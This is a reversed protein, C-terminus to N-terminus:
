PGFAVTAAPADERDLALQREVLEAALRARAALEPYAAAGVEGALARYLELAEARRGQKLVALALNLRVNPATPESELLARYAAEADAFREMHMWEGAQRYQFYTEHGRRAVQGYLAAARDHRGEECAQRARRELEAADGPTSNERHIIWWGLLLAVLLAGGALLVRALGRGHADMWDAAPFIEKGAATRMSDLSAVLVEWAATELPTAGAPLGARRMRAVVGHHPTPLLLAFFLVWARPPWDAPNWETARPRVGEVMAETRNEWALPFFGCPSFDPVSEAGEDRRHFASAEEDWFSEKLWDDLERQVGEAVGVARDMDARGEALRCFAAAENSLLVGLDVTFRGPSFEAPLLAEAASPWLPLGTGRADYRDFERELGKALGPLIRTVWKDPDPLADAVREALYCIVPCAPSLNGQSDATALWAEILRAATEPGAVTWAAIALPLGSGAAAAEVPLSALAREASKTRKASLSDLWARRPPGGVPQEAMSDM